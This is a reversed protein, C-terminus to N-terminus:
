ESIPKMSADENSASMTTLLQELGAGLKSLVEDPLSLIADQLVGRLPRPAAALTSEGTETLFLYVVRHDASGKERRILERKELREVLNSATSRHVALVKALDIVRLGPQRAIEALAWLQAGSLGCNGEVEQYYQQVTRFIQRFQKLVELGKARRAEDTYAVPPPTSKSVLANRATEPSGNPDSNM